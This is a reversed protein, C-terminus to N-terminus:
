DFKALAAPSGSRAAHRDPVHRPWRKITLRGRHLPLPPSSTNHPREMDKVQILLGITAPARRPPIKKM